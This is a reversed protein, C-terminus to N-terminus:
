KLTEFDKWEISILHFWSRLSVFSASISAMKARSMDHM